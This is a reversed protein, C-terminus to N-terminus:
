LLMQSHQRRRTLGGHTQRSSRPKRPRRTVGPRTMALFRSIHARMWGSTDRQEAIKPTQESMAGHNLLAEGLRIQFDRDLRHGYKRLYRGALEHPMLTAVHEPARIYYIGNGTMPRHYQDDVFCIHTQPPMGTCRLFDSPSKEHSTRCSAVREGRAMYAPIIMDFVPVGVQKDFYAAIGRAWAEPGQNNTYMAIGSIIGAARAEVLQGLLQAMGPRVYEPYLEMVEIFHDLNLLRGHAQEVADWFGGLQVFHGLTEDMDFVIVRPPSEAM